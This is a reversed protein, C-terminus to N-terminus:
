RLFGRVGQEAAADPTLTGDAVQARLAALDTKERFATM